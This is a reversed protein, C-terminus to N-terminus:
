QDSWEFQKFPEDIPTNALHNVYNSMVKQSVVLVVELVNRQTFGAKLFEAVQEDSVNGRSRVVELTFSRLAELKEPLAQQNRLATDISEDVKMSRAIGSHAPVCYHCKHEVNVTQWVVTKEDNNFSSELVLRHLTQYGELLGPAEAMVAHLNPIMGFSQQSAELLSKSAEPASEQTHLTFQSM